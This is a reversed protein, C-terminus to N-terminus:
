SSYFVESDARTLYASFPINKGGLRGNKRGLTGKKKNNVLFLQTM